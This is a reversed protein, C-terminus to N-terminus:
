DRKQSVYRLNLKQLLNVFQNYFGSFKFYEEWLSRNDQQLKTFSMSSLSRHFKIIKDSIQEVEDYEIWVVHNRWNIVNEFPLICDTNIFIPIRGMALTEYLRASFNGTGRVCITYDSDEINEFFQRQLKDLSEKSKPKGGRYRNRRIFNSEIIPSSQIIDLIKKRMYTPPTVNDSYYGNSNRYYNFNQYMRKISKFFSVLISPDTQGCFGVTPTEQFRRVTIEDKNYSLLPDRIIVPLAFTLNNSKSQFASYMFGIINEYNPLLYFYDGRNCIIIKKNSLKALQILDLAKSKQNSVLYYNWAMPLVVFHCKKIDITLSIISDDIEFEKFRNRPIFPRLLDILYRRSESVYHSKDTYILVM